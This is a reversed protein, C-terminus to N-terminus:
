SFGRKEFRSKFIELFFGRPLCLKRLALAILPSTTLPNRSEQPHQLILVEVKNPFPTILGCICYNLAKWCNPCTQVAETM